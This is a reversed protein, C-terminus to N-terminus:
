FFDLEFIEIPFNRLIEYKKMTDGRYYRVGAYGLQQNKSARYSLTKLFRYKFKALGQLFIKDLFSWYIEWFIVLFTMKVSTVHHWPRMNRSTCPRYILTSKFWDRNFLELMSFLGLCSGHKIIIVLWLYDSM